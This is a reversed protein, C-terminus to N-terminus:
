EYLFEPKKLLRCVYHVREVNSRLAEYEHKINDYLIGGELVYEGAFSPMSFHDRVSHYVIFFRQLELAEISKHDVLVSTKNGNVFAHLHFLTM